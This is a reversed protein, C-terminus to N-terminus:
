APNDKITLYQMQRHQVDAPASLSFIPHAVMPQLRLAAQPRLAMAGQQLVKMLGTGTTPHGGLYPIPHDFQRAHSQWWRDFVPADPWSLAADPDEDPIAGNAIKPQQALVPPANGAWGAVEPLAGTIMSISATSLRTYEPIDLFERLRNIHSVYGSIGLAQIYLRTDGTHTEIYALTDDHSHPTCLLSLQTAQLRIGAQKAQMLQCLLTHVPLGGDPLRRALIATLVGCTIRPDAPQLLMKVIAVYDPSSQLHLGYVLAPILAHQTLLGAIEAPRVPGPQRIDPRLWNTLLRLAPYDEICSWLISTAPTWKIINGMVPLFQPMAQTLRCCGDMLAANKSCAAFIGLAFVDGRSLPSALQEDFYVSAEDRLLLLGEIYAQMRADWTLLDGVNHSYSTLLAQRARFDLALMDAYQEALVPAVATKLNM